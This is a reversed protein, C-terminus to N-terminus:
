EELGIRRMLDSFRPDQEIDKGMPYARVLPLSSSRDDYAKELWEFCNDLDGLGAYVFARELPAFYRSKALEELRELVM